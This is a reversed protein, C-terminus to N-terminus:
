KLNCTLYHVFYAYTHEAPIEWKSGKMVIPKGNLAWEADLMSMSNFRTAGTDCNVEYLRTVLQSMGNSPAPLLITLMEGMKRLEILKFYVEVTESKTIQKSMPDNADKSVFYYGRKLVVPNGRYLPESVNQATASPCMIGALVALFLYGSMLQRKM